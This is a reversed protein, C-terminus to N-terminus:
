RLVQKIRLAVQKALIERGKQNYHVDNGALQLESRRKLILDYLNNIGVKHKKMVALAAKNFEEARDESVVIHANREAELCPPTTIAFLLTADSKKRIKQIISELSNAYSQPTAKTEQRWGYWDWLGFNFHIVDWKSDGLWEEIHDDGFASWRCNTKPRHVNAVGDLLKRVIPTYAISISDGVIMVRPLDPKDVPNAFPHQFPDTHKVKAQILSASTFWTCCIILFTCSKLTKMSQICLPPTCSKLM